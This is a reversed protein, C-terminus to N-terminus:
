LLVAKQTGRRRSARTPNIRGAMKGPRCRCQWSRQIRQQRNTVESFGQSMTAAHRCVAANRWFISKNPKRGFAAVGTKCLDRNTNKQSRFHYPRHDDLLGPLPIGMSFCGGGSYSGSGSPQGRTRFGIRAVTALSTPIFSGASFVVTRGFWFRFGMNDGGRM